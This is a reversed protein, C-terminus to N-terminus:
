QQRGFRCSDWGYHYQAKRVYLRSRDGNWGDMLGHEAELDKGKQFCAEFLIRLENEGEKLYRSVPVRHIHFMNDSKLIKHNNLFVTAYVDLGEFVLDKHKSSRAADDQHFITRYEWDVDGVWQVDRENLGILPDAIVGAEM